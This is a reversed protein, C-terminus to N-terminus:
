KDQLYLRLLFGNFIYSLGWKNRQNLCTTLKTNELSENQYSSYLLNEKCHIAIGVAADLKWLLYKGRHIKHAKSCNEQPEATPPSLVRFRQIQHTWTKRTMSWTATNEDEFHRGEGDRLGASKQGAGWSHHLQVFSIFYASHTLSKTPLSCRCKNIIQESWIKESRQLKFLLKM